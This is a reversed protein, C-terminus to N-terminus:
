VDGLGSHPSLTACKTAKAAREKGSASVPLNLKSETKMPALAKPPIM